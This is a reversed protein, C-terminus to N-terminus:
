TSPPSSPPMIAQESPENVATTGEEEKDGPVVEEEDSVLDVLAGDSPIRIAEQNLEIFLKRAFEWDGSMDPMATVWAASPGAESLSASAAAVVSATLDKLEDDSLEVIGRPPESSELEALSPTTIEETSVLTEKKGKKM